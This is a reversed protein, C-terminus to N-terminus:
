MKVTRREALDGGREAEAMLAHVLDHLCGATAPAPALAGLGGTRPRAREAPVGGLLHLPEDRAGADVDTIAADWHGALRDSGALRSPGEGGGDRRDGRLGDGLL